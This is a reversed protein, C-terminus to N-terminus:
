EVRASACRGSGAADDSFLLRVFEALTRQGAERLMEAQAVAAQSARRYEQENDMWREIQAVAPAVFPTGPEVLLGAERGVFANRDAM